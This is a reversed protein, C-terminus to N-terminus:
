LWIVEGTAISYYAPVIKVAGSKVAKAIISSRVTLNHASLSANAYTASILLDEPKSKAAAKVAPVIQKILGPLHGPLKEEHKYVKIAASVAGCASHGLVVIVPTKLVAVGYELSAIIDDDAVNGAVRNVFLDGPGQDFVFEPSVRSDACSLIGAIPYQAAERAARDANFEKFTAKSAVYRANGEKLRMLAADPSIANPAAAFAPRLSLGLGAPAALAAAALMGGRLLARRSLNNPECLECM